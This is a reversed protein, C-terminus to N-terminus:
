IVQIFNGRDLAISVLVDGRDIPLNSIVPAIAIHHATAVILRDVKNTAFIFSATIELNKGTTAKMLRTAVHRGPLVTCIAGHFVARETLVLLSVPSHFHWFWIRPTVQETSQELPKFLFIM